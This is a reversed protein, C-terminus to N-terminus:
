LFDDYSKNTIEMLEADDNVGIRDNSITNHDLVDTQNDNASVAVVSFLLCIILIFMFYKSKITM